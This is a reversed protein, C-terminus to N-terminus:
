LGAGWSPSYDDGMVMKIYGVLYLSGAVVVCGNRGV